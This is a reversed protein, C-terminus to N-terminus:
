RPESGSPWYAQQWFSHYMGDGDGLIILVAGGGCNLLCGQGYNDTWVKDDADNM